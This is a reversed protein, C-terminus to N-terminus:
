MCRNVASRKEAPEVLVFRVRSRFCQLSGGYAFVRATLNQTAIEASRPSLGAPENLVKVTVVIGQRRARLGCRARIQLTGSESELLLSVAEAITRYATLQLGTSLQCPDGSLKTSSIRGTKDWAESIGCGQLALYLGVHELPIPYVMTTQERLNRSSISVARLVGSAFQEHGQKRLWDVTQNLAFDIHEGIRGMSLARARLDREAAHYSMRAFGMENRQQREVTDLRRRYHSTISGLTLLSTAVLALSKQSAFAAADFSGPLGTAPTTFHVLLNMLPVGVAAGRWGHICTLFIVPAAMLLQLETRGDPNIEPLLATCYGLALMLMLCAASPPRMWKSWGCADGRHIALAALAVVSIIAMYHGLVYRAALAAIDDPPPTSWFTRMLALNGIGVAIAAAIAVSLIWTKSQGPIAHRHLYVILAVIPFQYMSSVLVWELGYRNVMPLRMEAFYAYEGVLLYPWIRVPTALLAAMRIGSPIFFQDLSIQRTAWCAIAYLTAALIGAPLTSIESRLKKILRSRSM